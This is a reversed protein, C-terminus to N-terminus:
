ILEFSHIKYQKQENPDKFNVKKFADRTCETVFGQIIVTQQVDALVILYNRQMEITFLYWNCQRLKESFRNFQQMVREGFECYLLLTIFTWEIQGLTNLLEM